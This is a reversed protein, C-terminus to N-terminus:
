ERLKMYKVVGRLILAASMMLVIIGTLWRWHTSVREIEPKQQLGNSDIFTVKNNPELNISDSKNIINAEASGGLGMTMGTDDDGLMNGAVGKRVGVDQSVEGPTVSVIEPDCADDIGDNDRDVGLARGVVCEELTNPTDDGDYDNLSAIIFVYKVLDHKQGAIDTYRVHLEHMGPSVEPPIQFSLAVTGDSNVPFEGLLVPTSHLEGTVVSNVVPLVFSGLNIVMSIPTGGEIVGVSVGDVVSSLVAPESGRDAGVLRRYLVNDPISSAGNSSTPMATSFDNTYARIRKALLMNGLANPHYSSTLFQGVPQGDSANKTDFIIGNVAQQANGCLRFDKETSYDIFADSTNIYKVGAQAAAIRVAANLYDTLANAFQRESSNMLGNCSGEDNFIQPYGVVYLRPDSGSMNQKLAKYVNVLEPIRQDIRAAIVRRENEASYCSAQTACATIIDKFGIDNGGITITSITPPNAQLLSLQPLYGPRLSEKINNIFHIDEVPSKAQPKGEEIYKGEGAMFLVDKMKAGSCAVSDYWDPALWKNLIESYSLKSQHCKNFNSADAHFNTADYYNGAGEGSSYSDGLALYRITQPGPDVNVRFQINKYGSGNFLATAYLELTSENLFKASKLTFDYMSGGNPLTKAYETMFERKLERKACVKDQCDKTDYMTIGVGASSTLVFRGSNSVATTMVYSHSVYPSFVTVKLNPLEVLLQGERADVYAWRGNKSYAFGSPSPAYVASGDANKLLRASNFTFGNPVNRVVNGARDTSFDTYISRWDDVYRLERVTDPSSSSTNTFVMLGATAPNPYLTHDRISNKYIDVVQWDQSGTPLIYGNFSLYGAVTPFTPSVAKQSVTPLPAYGTKINATVTEAPVNNLEYADIRGTYEQVGSLAIKGHVWDPGELAATSRYPVM